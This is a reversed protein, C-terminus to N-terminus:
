RTGIREMPDVSDGSNRIEFHLHPQMGRVNANGTKGVLGIVQGQRVWADPEVLLEKLHGYVTSYEGPHSIKVYKGMGGPIYGTKARGSKSAYVATGLKSAIDVGKHKRGNKRKAGFDGEGWDDNRITLTEDYLHVPIIFHPEKWKYITERIPGQFSFVSVALM